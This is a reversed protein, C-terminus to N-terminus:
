QDKHFLLLFVRLKGENKENVGPIKRISDTRYKAKLVDFQKIKQHKICADKNVYQRSKIYQYYPKFSESPKM